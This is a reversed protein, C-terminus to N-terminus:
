LKAVSYIMLLEHNGPFVLLFLRIVVEYEYPM